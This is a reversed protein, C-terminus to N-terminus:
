ATSLERIWPNEGQTGKIGGPTTTKIAQKQYNIWVKFAKVTVFVICHSGQGRKTRLCFATIRQALRMWQREPRAICTFTWAHRWEENGLCM